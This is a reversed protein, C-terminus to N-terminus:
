IKNKKCVSLVKVMKNEVCVFAYLVRYSFLDNPAKSLIAFREAWWFITKARSGNLTLVESHVYLWCTGSEWRLCLTVSDEESQQVSTWTAAAKKSLKTSYQPPPPMWRLCSTDVTISPRKYQTSNIHEEISKSTVCIVHHGKWYKVMNMSQLTGIIDIQTISTMESFCVASQFIASQVVFSQFLHSDSIPQIFWVFSQFIYSISPSFCVVSNFM